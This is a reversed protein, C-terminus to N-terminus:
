RHASKPYAQLRRAPWDPEFSFPTGVEIEKIIELVEDFTFVVCRGCMVM